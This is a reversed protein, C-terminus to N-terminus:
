HEDPEESERFWALKEEKWLYLRGLARANTLLLYMSTVSRVGAALWPNEPLLHSSYWQGAYLGGILGAALLYLLGGRFIAPLVIHPSTALLTGHMVTALMAMPFYLTALGLLVPVVWSSVSAEPDGWLYWAWMPWSSLLLVALVKLTPWAIDDLLETLDPFSHVTDDEHSSIEILEYYLGCLYAFILLSSTLSAFWLTQLTGIFEGLLLILSGVVLFPRGNRQLPYTLVDRIFFIPSRYAASDDILSAHTM